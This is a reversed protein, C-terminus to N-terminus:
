APTSANYIAAFIINKHRNAILHVHESRTSAVNPLNQTISNMANFSISTLHGQARTIQQPRETQTTRPPFDLPPPSPVYLFLLPPLSAHTFLHPSLISTTLFSPSVALLLPTPFTSNLASCHSIPYRILAKYVSFRPLKNPHRITFM